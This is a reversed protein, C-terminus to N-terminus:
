MEGAIGRIQDMFKRGKGTRVEKVAAEPSGKERLDIVLKLEVRTATISPERVDLRKLQAPSDAILRRLESLSGPVSAIASNYPELYEQEGTIVYGRQGTEADKMESLLQDMQFLVEHAHAVKFRTANPVNINPYAGWGIGLPLFFAGAFGAAIKRGFTWM